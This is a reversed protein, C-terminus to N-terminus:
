CRHREPTINGAFYQHDILQPIFASPYFWNTQEAPGPPTRAPLNCRQVYLIKFIGKTTRRDTNKQEPELRPQDVM